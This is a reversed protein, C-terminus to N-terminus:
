KSQAPGDDEKPAVAVIKARLAVFIEAINGPVSVVDLANKLLRVEDETFELKVM